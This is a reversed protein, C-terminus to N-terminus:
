PRGPLVQSPLARDRGEALHDGTEPCRDGHLLVNDEPGAHLGVRLPVGERDQCGVSFFLFFGMAFPTVLDRASSVCICM